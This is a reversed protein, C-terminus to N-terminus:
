QCPSRRCGCLLKRSQSTGGHEFADGLAHLLLADGEGGSGHLDLGDSGRLALVGDPDAAGVEGLDGGELLHPDGLLIVILGSGLDDVALAELRRTALQM